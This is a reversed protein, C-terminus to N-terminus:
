WVIKGWLLIDQSHPDGGSPDNLVGEVQLLDPEPLDEVFSSFNYHIM